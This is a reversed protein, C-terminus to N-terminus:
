APQPFVRILPRMRRDEPAYEFALLVAGGWEGGLGVGQVLRLSVLLMPAAVGITAYTPLCGILMTAGGMFSLTLVLTKKRGIRDGVHAFLIGGIPRIFFPLAFSLYALLLSVIPDASPFFLKNSVIATASGYLFFDFWEITSGVMSALLVRRLARM